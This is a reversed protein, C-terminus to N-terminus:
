ECMYSLVLEYVEKSVYVYINHLKSSTYIIFGAICLTNSIQSDKLM